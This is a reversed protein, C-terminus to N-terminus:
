SALFVIYEITVPLSQSFRSSPRRLVLMPQVRILRTNEPSQVPNSYACVCVCLMYRLQSPVLTGEVGISDSM